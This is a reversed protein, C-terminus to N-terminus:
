AADVLERHPTSIEPKTEGVTQLTVDVGARLEIVILASEVKSELQVPEPIKIEKEIGDLIYEDFLEQLNAIAEAETLGDTKCGRLENYQATWYSSGDSDRLPEVYLTYPLRKYYELNKATQEM